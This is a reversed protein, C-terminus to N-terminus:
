EVQVESILCPDVVIKVLHIPAGWSPKEKNDNIIKATIQVWLGNQKLLEPLNTPVYKEGTESEVGYFGGNSDIYTIKGTYEKLGATSKPEPLATAKDVAVPLETAPKDQDTTDPMPSARDAAAAPLDTAPKDPKVTASTPSAQDTAVAPSNTAPPNPEVALATYSLLLSFLATTLITSPNLKM